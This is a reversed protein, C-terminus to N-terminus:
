EAPSYVPYIGLVLIEVGQLALLERVVSLVREGRDEYPRVSADLYYVYNGIADGVPRSELRTLNLNAAAFTHLALALGGPRHPVGRLCLSATWDTLSWSPSPLAVEPSGVLAFRTVNGARDEFPEPWVSLGYLQAARRSGIAVARAREGTAIQRVAEATSSVAVERAGPFRLRIHEKCQALAQPHSVVEDVHDLDLGERYIACQHIPLTVAALIQRAGDGPHERTLADWVQWVSGQISNEIPVCALRAASKPAEFVEAFSQMAVQKVPQDALLVSAIRDAAEHSHTGEPGLYMVEWASM